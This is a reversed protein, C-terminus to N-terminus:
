TVIQRSHRGCTGAQQLLIASASAATDTLSFFHNTISCHAQKNNSASSSASAAHQHDAHTAIHEQGQRSM